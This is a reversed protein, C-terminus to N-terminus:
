KKVDLTIKKIIDFILKFAEMNFDFGSANSIIYNALDDKTLAYNTNDNPVNTYVRKDESGNIIELPNYNKNKRSKAHQYFYHGDLSRGQDDFEKAMFIKRGNVDKTALNEDTFYHEISILDDSNRHSPIPINFKYVKNPASLFDEDFIYSKVDRDFMCIKINSDIGKQLYDFKRALEGDGTQNDKEIDYIIIKNIFDAYEQENKFLDLAYRLYKVDTKGETYIIIKDNDKKLNELEVQLRDKSKRLEEVSNNFIDQAKKMESFTCVDTIKIGDPMVLIDIAKDYQQHLGALLFPSHTTFIFQIKPFLKMLSPLARYSYDIHLGLDVEDVIVVGSIEKLDNLRHNIDWEKLICMAFSFLNIEGESLQSIDFCSFDNNSFGLMKNKRNMGLPVQVTKNKIVSFIQKVMKQLPTEVLIQVTQGKMQPPVNDEKDFTHTQITKELFIDVLWPKIEKLLNVKIFNSKSQNISFSDDSHYINNNSKNFWHPYYFRDVPFYLVISKELEAKTINCNIKKSFGNEKFKEIDEIENTNISNLDQIPNRSMIDYFYNKKSSYGSEIMVYSFSTGKKIYSKSGVKFYNTEKTELINNEYVKRKIEILNDIMHSLVLTKGKGNEGILVCPVPNGNDDFRFEHEFAKISGYNNIKIRKFYM